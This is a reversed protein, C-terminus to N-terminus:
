ITVTIRVGGSAGSGGNGMGGTGGGGGNGINIRITDTSNINTFTNTSYNGASGGVGFRDDDFDLFQAGDAGGEGGSSIPSGDNGNFSSGGGPDAPTGGTGGAGNFFSDAPSISFTAGIRQSATVTNAAGGGGGTATFTQQVSGGSNLIQVTTTGGGSGGTPAGGGATASGGGGGGGSAEITVTAWASSIDVDITGLGTFTIPDGPLAPTPITTSDAFDAGVIVVGNDDIQIYSTDNGALFVPINSGTRNGLFVGNTFYDSFSTKKFLFSGEVDNITLEGNVNMKDVVVAGALIKDATVADTDIEDATIAGVAIQDATLSNAVLATAVITETVLLSGDIQVAFSQWDDNAVGTGDHIAGATKSASTSSPYTLVVIDGEIPNGLTISCSTTWTGQLAECITQRADNNFDTSGVAPTTTDTFSRDFRGPGRSGAAGTSGDTGDQAMITPTVWTLVTDTGTAGQVSALTSTTYLPDTGTPVSTSWGTPATGTNTGFNYQGGTPTAPLTASRQFVSFLYTSLGNVGAAGDTGDAGDAGDQVFLIPAGWTVTSDTGTDGSISFTAESVYLPNSGAPISVNWVQSSPSGTPATLTNTTFNFSGTNTVPTGPSTSLRIYVNTTYVSTGSTGDNGDGGTAGNQALIEPSSWTLSTDTGTTGNVTAVSLSAYLPDTGTPITASWDTPPTITNSDFSYSGGTPTAPATSARRYITLQAVSDGAVGATGDAGDAGIYEVFTQGSVPLTPAATAEFFTVFSRGTPTFAQGAGSSSTAYIPFISQGAAGDTGDTGNTGDSGDQGIFRVFTGTVPLTPTTTTYEVYQVFENSGATLSQNTGVADDSYVILVAAGDTGPNGNVGNTGDAGAGGTKSKSFSQIISFSQETTGSPGEVEVTITRTGSDNTLGTIAGVSASSQLGSPGSVGTGNTISVNFQNTGPDANNVFSLAVTGYFASLTTGSGTFVPSSGDNNAPVVHAENSQFVTYASEGTAGDVGISGDSLKHITISDSISDATATVTVSTNTGFNTGTLTRTNGTGGLTVSPSSTFTANGTINQLNAVFTVTQSSPALVDNDDFTFVQSDASLVVTQANAGAAGDQAMIVPGVWSLTTDVGNVGQISALASTTYLPNTGSPVSLSWGTPPTGTNSGFNYQGGTPTAPATSERRFVSFLYTSLGNVGDTGNQIFLIPSGWVVTSDTGTDGTISFTAESSYVADTGSPISTSWVQSTPSGNPATLTNTGFNFSGTNTEPNSPASGSKRTYVNTTYVSVGTTGNTGNQALINPSSWTLTTDIGTTGNVSAVSLSAYLPNTGAPIATSWGTPPTIANTTFSYQGGTPTAPATSSRQYITLQAVSNGDTGDDGRVGQSGDDGDSSLLLAAAWETTAITDTATRSSAAASTFWLYKGTTSITEFTQWVNNTAPTLVGTALNFTASVNPLSTPATASNTRQYYVAVANSLGDLGDAGVVGAQVVGSWESRFLTQQREQYRQQLGLIFNIQEQLQMLRQTGAM